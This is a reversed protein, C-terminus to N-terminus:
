DRAPSQSQTHAGAVVTSEAAPRGACPREDERPLPAGGVVLLPPLVEVAATASAADSHSGGQRAARGEPACAQFCSFGLLVVLLAFGDGWFFDEAYSKLLPRCCLVLQTLPLAIASALVM